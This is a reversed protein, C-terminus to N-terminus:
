IFNLFWNWLWVLQREFTWYRRLTYLVSIIDFAWSLDWSLFRFGLHWFCSPVSGSLVVALSSVRSRPHPHPSFCPSTSLRMHPCFVAKPACKLDPCTRLDIWDARMVHRQWRVRYNGCISRFFLFHPPLVSARLQRPESTVCIMKMWMEKALVPWVNEGM